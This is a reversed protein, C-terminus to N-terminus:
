PNVAAVQEERHFINRALYVDRELVLRVSLSANQLARRRDLIAGIAWDGNLLNKRGGPVQRAAVVIAQAVKGAAPGRFPIHPFLWDMRALCNQLAPTAAGSCLVAGPKRDIVHAVVIRLVAANPKSRQAPASGPLNCDLLVLHLLHAHAAARITEIESVPQLLPLFKLCRIEVPAVGACPDSAS